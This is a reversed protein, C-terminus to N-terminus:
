EFEQLKKNARDCLEKLRDVDNQMIKQRGESSLISYMSLERQKTLFFDEKEAYFSEKNAFFDSKAELIKKDWKREVEEVKEISFDYIDLKYVDMKEKQAKRRLEAAGGEDFLLSIYHKVSDSVADSSDVFLQYQAKMIDLEKKKGQWKDCARTAHEVLYKRQKKELEPCDKSLELAQRISVNFSSLDEAFLPDQESAKQREEFAELGKKCLDESHRAEQFTTFFMLFGAVAVAIFISILISVCVGLANIKANKQDRM